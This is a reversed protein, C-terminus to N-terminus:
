SCDGHVHDIPALQHLRADVLEREESMRARRYLAALSELASREVGHAGVRRAGNAAAVWADRAEAWQELRLHARGREVLAQAIGAVSGTQACARAALDFHELAEAPADALLALSGAGMAGTVIVGTERAESALVLGQALRRRGEDLDGARALVLGALVFTLSRPGSEGRAHHHDALLALSALADDTRGEAADSMAVTLAAAARARDDINEDLADEVLAERVARSSLDVSTVLTPIGSSRLVSLLDGAARVVLEFGADRAASALSIAFPEFTEEDDIQTPCLVLAVRVDGCTRAQRAVHALAAILAAADSTENRELPVLGAAALLEAIRTRIADVCVHESAFPEFSPVHLDSSGRAELMEIAAQVLGMSPGDGQVVLADHDDESIAEEIEDALQTIRRRM